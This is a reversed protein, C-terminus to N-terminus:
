ADGMMTALESVLAPAMGPFYDKAILKCLDSWFVEFEGQDMADFSISDVVWFTRSSAADIFPSARGLKIKVVTLLQNMTLLGDQNELVRQLLAMVLAHHKPNRPKSLDARLVDGVHYNRARLM